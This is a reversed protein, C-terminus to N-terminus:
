FCDIPEFTVDVKKLVQINSLLYTKPTSNQRWLNTQYKM